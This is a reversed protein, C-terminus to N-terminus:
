EAILDRSARRWRSYRNCTYRSRPKWTYSVDNGVLTLGRTGRALIGVAVIAVAVSGVILPARQRRTEGRVTSTSTM